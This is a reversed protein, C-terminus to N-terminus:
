YMRHVNNTRLEIKAESIYGYYKSGQPTQSLVCCKAKPIFKETLSSQGCFPKFGKIITYTYLQKSCGPSQSTEQQHTPARGRVRVRGKREKECLEHSLGVTLM